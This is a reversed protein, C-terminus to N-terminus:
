NLIKDTLDFSPTPGYEDFTVGVWDTTMDSRTLYFGAGRLDSLSFRAGSVDALDLFAGQMNAETMVVDNLKAASFNTKIAKAGSLDSGTLDTGILIANELNANKFDLGSLDAGSLDVGKLHYKNSEVLSKLDRIIEPDPQSEYFTKFPSWLSHPFNDFSIFEPKPPIKYAQLQAVRNLASAKNEGQLQLSLNSVRREVSSRRSEYLGMSFSYVALYFGILWVVITTPKNEPDGVGAKFLLWRLGSLDYLFFLWKAAFAISNNEPNGGGLKSLLGRLGSSRYLFFLGKKSWQILKNM